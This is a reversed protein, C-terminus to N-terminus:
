FHCTTCDTSAQRSRHCDLCYGMTLKVARVAVTQQSLDGHCASCQVGARIHPAHNFKVHATPSFGYVRQWPVDEGRSFYAALKRVEPKETAFLQHCSMCFRANPIGAVPGTAAGAHCSECKVGRALHTKHPFQIPQEPLPRWGAFDRIAQAVTAHEPTFVGRTAAGQGSREWGAALAAFLLLLFFLTRVSFVNKM